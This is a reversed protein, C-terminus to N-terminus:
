YPHGARRAANIHKGCVGGYVAKGRFRCAAGHRFFWTCKEAERRRQRREIEEQDPCAEHPINLGVVGNGLYGVREIHNRVVAPRATAVFVQDAARDGYLRCGVGRDVFHEYPRAGLTAKCIWCWKRRCQTCALKNCGDRREMPLGCVCRLIVKEMELEERTLADVCPGEHTRQRCNRCSEAGCGNCRFNLAQRDEIIVQNDCFPCAYLNELAAQQMEHRHLIVAYAKRVVEDFPFARAVVSDTYLKSCNEEFCRVTKNEGIAVKVARSVCETCAIHHDDCTVAQNIHVDEDFCCNCTLKM